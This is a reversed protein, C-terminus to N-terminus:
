LVYRWLGYRFLRSVTYWSLRWGEGSLWWTWSDWHGLSPAHYDYITLGHGEWARKATLHARLGEFDSMILVVRKFHQAEIIPLAYIANEATNTAQAELLIREDPVGRAVLADRFFSAETLTTGPVVVGGSVILYHVRGQHFLHAATAIRAQAKWLLGTGFVLAADASTTPLRRRNLAHGLSALAALILLCGSTGALLAM